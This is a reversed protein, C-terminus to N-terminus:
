YLVTKLIGWYISLIKDAVSKGFGLMSNELFIPSITLPDASLLRDDNVRRDPQISKRKERIERRQEWLWKLAELYTKQLGMRLLMVLYLGEVGLLMPFIGIITRLQYNKLVSLLRNRTHLYPRLRPYDGRSRVSYEATGSGHNVKSEPQYWCRWGRMRARYCYDFEEHYVFFDSDCGGIALFKMRDVLASTSDIAGVERAEGSPPFGNDVPQWMENVNLHGTFHLSSGSSQIESGDLTRVHSVVAFINEPDRLYVEILPGLWNREVVVDPGTICVLPSSAASVAQNLASSYGINTMNQLIKVSPHKRLVEISNDKSCNDVIIIEQIPYESDELSHIYEDLYNAHNFCVTVVSVPRTPNSDLKTM